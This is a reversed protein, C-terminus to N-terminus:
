FPAEDFSRARRRRPADLAANWLSKYEDEHTPGDSWEGGTDWHPSRPEINALECLVLFVSYANNWRAPVSQGRFMRRVTETSADGPLDDRENIRSSIERLTPRDARKLYGFLNAVFDRRPGKPLESLSPMALHRPM